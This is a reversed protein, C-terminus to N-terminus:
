AARFMPPMSELAPSLVPPPTTRSLFAPRDSPYRCPPLSPAAKLASSLFLPTPPSAPRTDLLPYRLCATLTSVTLCSASTSPRVFDPFFRTPPPPRHYLLLVSSPLVAVASSTHHEIAALIDFSLTSDFRFRVHFCLRPLRSSHTADKTTPPHPPPATHQPYTITNLMVSPQCIVESPLFALPNLM